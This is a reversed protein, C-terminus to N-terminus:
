RKQLHTIIARGAGQAIRYEENNNKGTGAPVKQEYIVKKTDTDYLKLLIGVPVPRGGQLAYDLFGLIFFDAGGTVARYYEDETLGSLEQSPKEDMRIIPSNTVIHGADFFAAMLGGEWLSTYQTGPADKTLGTEVLFFSVMSASAPFALLALLAAMSLLRKVNM